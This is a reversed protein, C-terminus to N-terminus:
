SEVESKLEDSIMAPLTFTYQLFLQTFLRLEELEKLTFDNYTHSAEASLSRIHL